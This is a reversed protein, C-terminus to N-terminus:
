VNFGARKTLLFARVFPTFSSEKEIALGATDIAEIWSTRSHFHFCGPGFALFNPWNRLHELLIIEGNSKLVRALERFFQTRSESKRLEHAAFLAFAADLENNKFPLARFKARIAEISNEGLQRARLISMETMEIPDFFDVIIGESDPFTQHLIQGFEDLGAHFTAWHIPSTRLCRKIWAGDYMRTRDYIYHAIVLSMTLWFAAAAMAVVVFLRFAFPMTIAFVISVGAVLLVAAVVYFPWNFRVIQAVGQYKGRKSMQM